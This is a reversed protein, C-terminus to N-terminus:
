KSVTNKDNVFEVVIHNEIAEGDIGSVETKQVAKGETRNQIREKARDDGERAKKIDDIAIWDRHSLKSQKGTLQNIAEEELQLYKEYITKWSPPRKSIKGAESARKHDKDFGNERSM